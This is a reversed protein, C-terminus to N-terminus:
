ANKRRKSGKNESRILYSTHEGFGKKPLESKSGTYEHLDTPNIAEKYLLSQMDVEYYIFSANNDTLESWIVPSLNAEWKAIKRWKKDADTIIQLEFCVEDQIVPNDWNSEFILHKTITQKPLVVFPMWNAIVAKEIWEFRKESIPEFKKFDIEWQPMFIEYNSPISLKPFSARIRLGMVKGVRAGENTISIPIDVSPIYWKKRNNKFTYIRFQLNGSTTIARFKAFHTRWLAIASFVFAAFSVLITFTETKM